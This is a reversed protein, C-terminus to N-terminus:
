DHYTKDRNLIRLIRRVSFYKNDEEYEEKEDGSLNARYIADDYDTDDWEEVQTDELGNDVMEWWIKYAISGIPEGWEEVLDEEIGLQSIISDVMLESFQDYMQQNQEYEKKSVDYELEPYTRGFSIYRIHLMKEYVVPPFVTNVDYERVFKPDDMEKYKDDPVDATLGLYLTKVYPQINEGCEAVMNAFFRYFRYNGDKGLLEKALRLVNKVTVAQEADSLLPFQSLNKQLPTIDM